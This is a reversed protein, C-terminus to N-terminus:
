GDLCLCVQGQGKPVQCAHCTASQSQLLHLPGKLLWAGGVEATERLLCGDRDRDREGKRERERKGGRVGKGDELISEVNTRGSPTNTDAMPDALPGM